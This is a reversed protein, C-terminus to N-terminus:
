NGPGICLFRRHTIRWTREEEKSTVCVLVTVPLRANFVSFSCFPLLAAEQLVVLLFAAWRESVAM